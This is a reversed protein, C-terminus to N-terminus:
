NNGKKGEKEESEEKLAKEEEIIGEERGDKMSIQMSKIAQKRCM